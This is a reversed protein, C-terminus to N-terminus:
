RTSLGANRCGFVQVIASIGLGQILEPGSANELRRQASLSKFDFGSVPCLMKRLNGRDDRGDNGATRMQM